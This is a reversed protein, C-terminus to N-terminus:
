VMSKGGLKLWGHDVSLRKGVEQGWLLKRLRHWEWARDGEQTQTENYAIFLDILNPNLGDQKNVGNIKKHKKKM